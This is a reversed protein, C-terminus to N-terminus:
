GSDQVHFARPGAPDFDFVGIRGELKLGAVDQQGGPAFGGSQGADLQIAPEDAGAGLREGIGFNGSM